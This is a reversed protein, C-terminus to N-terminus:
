HEHELYTLGFMAGIGIGAGVFEVFNNCKPNDGKGKFLNQWIDAAIYVFNGAVFVMIYTKAIDDINVVALGIIVGIISIFNVFGNCLITQTQSFDAKLLVAM